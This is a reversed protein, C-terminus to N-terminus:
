RRSASCTSVSKALLFGWVFDLQAAVLGTVRTSSSTYPSNDQLTWFWAPDPTGNDSVFADGPPPTESQATASTISLLAGGDTVAARSHCTMCSATQLQGQETITNSMLVPQGTPDTFDTQIGVLRYNQFVPELGGLRMLAKLAATVQGDPYPYNPEAHPATYSPTVGFDDRCGIDDCRGLVNKNLWTAWFWFPVQKTMIHMAVLGYEATTRTGDPAVTVAVNRYFQSRQAPPIDAVPVWDAKIEIAEVPFDVVRLVAAMAQATSGSTAAVAAHARQYAAALGETYFLQEGVIYDFSAQNRRVEQPNVVTTGVPVGGQLVYWTLPLQPGDPRIATQARPGLRKLRYSDGPWTPPRAPDPCDPFTEGDTAWTEWYAQRRRERFSWGIQVPRNVSVFTKWAWFYPVNMTPNPHDRALNLLDDLAANAQGSALVSSPRPRDLARAIGFWDPADAASLTLAITVAIAGGGLMRAAFFARGTM